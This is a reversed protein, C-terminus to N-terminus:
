ALQLDSPGAAHLQCHPSLAGCSIVSINSNNSAAGVNGAYSPVHWCETRPAADSDQHRDVDEVVTTTATRTTCLDHFEPGTSGLGFGAFLSSWFLSVRKVRFLRIALVRPAFALICAAQIGFGLRSSM